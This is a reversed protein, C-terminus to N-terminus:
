QALIDLHCHTFPMASSVMEGSVANTISVYGHQELFRVLDSASDGQDRLNDDDLEVFLIPKHKQIIASAGRLVQLEYGEVDIKILDIKELSGIPATEDMRSVQILTNGDVGQPAIRNGGRNSPTRLEM